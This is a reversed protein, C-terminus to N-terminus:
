AAPEGLTEPNTKSNPVLSISYKNPQRRAVKSNGVVAYQSHGMADLVRTKLGRARKESAKAEADARLYDAALAPDLETTSGDIEPHLAKVTEYTTVSDDLDPPVGDRLSQEWAVCRAVIIDALEQNWEVTYIRPKGYQPWLVLNAPDRWRSILQQTLVQAAYDIPVEGSGDDGFEQLDRATKVEVCRRARGRSARLDVTALNAFPLADNSIQVEGRSIRWGPNKWLWYERAAIECAHGYDWDDQQDASAPKREVLGAMEHWLTYQSTWRSVGLIAPVKSPTILRLWEPSGPEIAVNRM